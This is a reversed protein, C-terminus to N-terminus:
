SLYDTTLYLDITFNSHNHYSLGTSVYIYLDIFVFKEQQLIPIFLM